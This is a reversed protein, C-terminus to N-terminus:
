VHHFFYFGQFIEHHKVVWWNAESVFPRLISAALEAPNTPALNDGVDHLLASVVTEDDAGDGLGRTATQLSHTYRDVQSGGCEGKLLELQAILLDPVQAQMAPLLSMEYAYDEATGEDM